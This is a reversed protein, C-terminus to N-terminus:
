HCCGVFISGPACCIISRSVPDRRINMNSVQVSNQAELNLKALAHLIVGQDISLLEKEVQWKNNQTQKIKLNFFILLLYSFIKLQMM